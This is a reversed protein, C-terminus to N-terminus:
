DDEEMENELHSFHFAGMEIEPEEPKNTSKQKAALAEKELRTKEQEEKEIEKLWKDDAEKEQQRKEPYCVDIALEYIEKRSRNTEVVHEIYNQFVFPWPIDYVQLLPTHFKESYYRCVKRYFYEGDKLATSKISIAEIKDIM